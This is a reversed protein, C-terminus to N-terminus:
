TRKPQYATSPKSVVSRAVVAPKQFHQALRPRFHSYGPPKWLTHNRETKTIGYKNLDRLFKNNFVFFHTTQLPMFSVGSHEDSVASSLASIGPSLEAVGCWNSSLYVHDYGCINKHNLLSPPIM